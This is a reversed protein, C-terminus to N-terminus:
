DPIDARQRSSTPKTNGHSSAIRPESHTTYPPCTMAPSRLSAKHWTTRLGDLPDLLRIGSTKTFGKQSPPTATKCQDGEEGM